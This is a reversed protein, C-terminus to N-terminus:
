PTDALLATIISDSLMIGARTLRYVMGDRRLLGCAVFPAAKATLTTAAEEGYRAAMVNLDLGDSTRLRLMVDEDHREWWQLTERECAVCGRAIEELYHRLHPLNASRTTGDYSHAAAGLGLYPTGNWYASNHRSRFGPRAFNSIEYHEWGAKVALDCLTEHMAVCTDDDVETILGRERLAWLRTGPEYSLNYASLHKVPLSLAREVNTRWAALSQGPLGYILDIGVNTIGAALCHEVAAVAQAATHRRNIAHLDRDDFSQVGMSVRNVGLAALERAYDRTIDDPNVEITFEVVRILPLAELLRELQRLTLLSPTGGGVYLTTVEEGRLEGRRMAWEQRLAEVYEDVRDLRPMSYFDCYVCKSRCFPIHVYLGAM